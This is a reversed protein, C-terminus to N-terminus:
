FYKNIFKFYTYKNNFNCEITLNTAFSFKPMIMIIIIVIIKLNISKYM